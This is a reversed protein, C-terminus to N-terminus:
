SKTVHYDISQDKEFGTILADRDYRGFPQILEAKLEEVLGASGQQM